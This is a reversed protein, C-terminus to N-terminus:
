VFMLLSASVSILNDRRREAVDARASSIICVCHAAYILGERGVAGGTRQSGTDNAIGTRRVQCHRYWCKVTGGLGLM